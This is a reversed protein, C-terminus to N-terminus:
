REDEEDDAVAPAPPQSAIQRQMERAARFVNLIGAAAGLFFFLLLLFPETGWWRDLLWGIGGGVLLATVLEVGIRFAFGSMSNPAARGGPAAAPEDERTAEKLRRLRAAFDSDSPPNPDSLDGSGFPL